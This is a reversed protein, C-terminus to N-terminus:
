SNIGPSNGQPYKYIDRRKMARNSWWIMAGAILDVTSDIVTSIVSLSGSMVAATTKTLLLMQFMAPTRSFCGFGSTQVSHQTTHQTLVIDNCDTISTHGSHCAVVLM